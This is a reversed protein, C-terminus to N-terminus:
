GNQCLPPEQEENWAPVPHLARPNLEFGTVELLLEPRRPEPAAPQQTKQQSCNWTLARFCLVLSEGQLKLVNQIREATRVKDKRSTSNSLM